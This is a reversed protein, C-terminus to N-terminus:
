QPGSWVAKNPPMFVKLAQANKGIYEKIGHLNEFRHIYATVTETQTAPYIHRYYSLVEYFLFDAYSLTGVLFDKKGLYDVLRQFLVSLKEAFVKDKIAEFEPNFLIPTFEKQLDKIVGIVQQVRM